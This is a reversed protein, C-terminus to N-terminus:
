NKRIKLIRQTQKNNPTVSVLYIAPRLITLDLQIVGNPLVMRNTNMLVKKGTIDTVQITFENSEETQFELSLVKQVPNPYARINWVPETAKNFGDNQLIILHVEGLRWKSINVTNLENSVGATAVVGSKLQIEQAYLCFCSILMLFLLIKIKM